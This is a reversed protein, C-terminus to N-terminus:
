ISIGGEWRICECHDGICAPHVDSYESCFKVCEESNSCKKEGKADTTDFVLILVTAVIVVFPFVKNM